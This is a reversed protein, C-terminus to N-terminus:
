LRGVVVLRTHSSQRAVCKRRRPLLDLIRIQPFIFAKANSYLKRLEADSVGTLFEINSSHALTKLKEAEPGTGVIKLPKKLQNFARIAIDFGKYYLLRGAMLYYEKPAGDSDPYFIETSVPPYVVQAERLYYSNIKNAIFQSNALFLNV